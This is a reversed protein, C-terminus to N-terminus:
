RTITPCIPHVTGSRDVPFGYVLLLEPWRLDPPKIDYVSTNNEYVENVVILQPGRESEIEGSMYYERKLDNGRRTIIVTGGFGGGRFTSRIDLITVDRLLPIVYRYSVGDGSSYEDKTFSAIQCAVWSHDGTIVGASTITTRFNFLSGSSAVDRPRDKRYPYEQVYFRIGVATAPSNPQNYVEGAWLWPYLIPKPQPPPLKWDVVWVSILSIVASMWLAPKQRML